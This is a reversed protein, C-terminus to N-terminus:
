TTPWGSPRKAWDAWNFLATEIDAVPMNKPSPAGFPCYLVNPGFLPRLADRMLQHGTDYGASDMDPVFVVRDYTAYLWAATDWSITLGNLSVIDFCDSLASQRLKLASVIDEVLIAWRNSVAPLVAPHKNTGPDRVTRWKPMSSDFYRTQVTWHADIPSQYAVSLEGKYLSGWLFPGACRVGFKDLWEVAAPSLSAAAVQVAMRETASGPAATSIAGDRDADGMTPLHASFGGRACKHCYFVYGLTTKTVTVKRKDSCGVHQWTESAGVAVPWSSGIVLEDLALRKGSM